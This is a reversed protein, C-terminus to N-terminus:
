ISYEASTKWHIGQCGRLIVVFLFLRGRLFSFEQATLFQKTLIKKVDGDSHRDFKEEKKEEKEREQM